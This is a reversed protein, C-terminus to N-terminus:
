ENSNARTQKEEELDRLIQDIKMQSEIGEDLIFTLEPFHRMVVKKSALVAIYGAASSLAEHTEKKEKDTGIVSFYVKAYHLDPTIEARTITILSSINPNSIERTVVESLVERLLSNLRSVRRTSM